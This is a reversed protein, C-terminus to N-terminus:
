ATIPRCCAPASTLSNLLTTVDEPDIGPSGLADVAPTVTQDLVDVDGTETTALLTWRRSLLDHDACLPALVDFGHAVDHALVLDLDLGGVPLLPETGM